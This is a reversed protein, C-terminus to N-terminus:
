YKGGRARKDGPMDTKSGRNNSRHKKVLGNKTHAADRPDGVKLGLSKRSKNRNARRKKEKSTSQYKKDYDYNRGTALNSKPRKNKGVVRNRRSRM